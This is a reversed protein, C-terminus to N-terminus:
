LRSRLLAGDAMLPDSELMRILILASDDPVYPLNPSPAFMAAATDNPIPGVAIVRRPGSCGSALFVTASLIAVSLAAVSLRSLNM